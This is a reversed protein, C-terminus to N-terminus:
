TTGKSADVRFELWGQEKSAITEVVRGITKNAIEMERTIENELVGWLIYCSTM